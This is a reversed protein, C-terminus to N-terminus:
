RCRSAKVRGYYVRDAIRRLPRRNLELPAHTADLVVFDNGLGHMKTFKLRM